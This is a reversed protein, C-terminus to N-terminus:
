FFPAFFRLISQWLRRYINYTVDKKTLQHSEKIIEKVDNHIDKIENVDELYVGNEFHLYLSRYDLNITGVTAKNDDSVFIKSHIFGPTYTYVKVGNEVLNKAYSNTLEYVIKKDPIGPIIIKVDVGRKVALILANIMDTDIILYPTTIYVYNIAKNIINLYVDEGELIGNLPVSGYCSIYGNPEITKNSPTKFKLYNDDEKHYSNWLTLFMITLNWVSDGELKIANDKWYGFRSLKNIYEDSFNLGGTYAIKGDIVTIKRHDRNNMFIGNYIKLKNFVVCKINLSELYKPYNEPLYPICGMDDYMIRVEIGEKVKEKLINLIQTWMTGENSIIFYELFIYKKANKLDTLFDPFFAEGDKYYKIQNNKSVPYNLFNNLYKLIDKQKDNIEATIEKDKQFYKLSEKTEKQINKLLKSGKISRKVMLYIFIGALPFLLILIIWLLDNIISKSNKVINSVILFSIITILIQLIYYENYFYAMLKYSLIFEILISLIILFTRELIKKM